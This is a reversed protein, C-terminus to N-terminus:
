ETVRPVHRRGAHRRDAEAISTYTGPLGTETLWEGHDSTLDGDPSAYQPPSNQPFTPDPACIGGYIPNGTSFFLARGPNATPAESSTSRRPANGQYQLGGGALYYVGPNFKVKAQGSIVIGGYYVGPNLTALSPEREHLRLRARSRAVHGGGPLLQPGVGAPRRHETGVLGFISDTIEAAGETTPGDWPNSTPNCTGRVYLHETM